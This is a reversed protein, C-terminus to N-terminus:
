GRAMRWLKGFYEGVTHNRFEHIYMDNFPFEFIVIKGIRNKGQENLVAEDMCIKTFEKALKFSNQENPQPEETLVLRLQDSVKDQIAFLPLDVAKDEPLITKRIFNGCAFEYFDECPNVSEDLSNLMTASEKACTESTCINPKDTTYVGKVSNATKLMEINPITASNVYAAICILLFAKGFM